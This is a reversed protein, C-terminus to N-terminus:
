ELEGTKELTITGSQTKLIVNLAGGNGLKGTPIRNELLSNNIPFDCSFQGNINKVMLQGNIPHQVRLQIDGSRTIQQFM